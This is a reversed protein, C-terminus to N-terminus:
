RHRKSFCALDWAALRPFQASVAILGSAASLAGEGEPLPPLTLPFKAKKNWVGCEASRVGCKFSPSNVKDAGNEM